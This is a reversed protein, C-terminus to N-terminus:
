RRSHRSVTLKLNLFETSFKSPLRKRKLRMSPSIDGLDYLYRVAQDQSLSGPREKHDDPDKSSAESCALHDVAPSPLATLETSVGPASVDGRSAMSHSPASTEEVHFESNQEIIHTM